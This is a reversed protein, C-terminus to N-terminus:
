RDWPPWGCVPSRPATAVGEGVAAVTGTLIGGSDTEPNHMKGRASVIELIRAGM